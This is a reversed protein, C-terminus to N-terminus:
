VRVPAQLALRRRDALAAGLIAIQIVYTFANEVAGFMFHHIRTFSSGQGVYIVDIAAQVGQALVAVGIWLSNYRAAAYLFGAAALLDLSCTLWMRGQDGFPLLVVPSTLVFAFVNVAAAIRVGQRGWRWAAVSAAAMLLIQAIFDIWNAILFIQEV